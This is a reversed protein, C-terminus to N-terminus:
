NFNTKVILNNKGSEAFDMVVIGFRGKINTSFFSNIKPNIFNSVTTINPIGFLGSKYGSGYNIFLRNANGTKAENALATFTNWKNDNNPVKYQDQIKISAQNNIEFTTNGTTNSSDWITADLGKPLNSAPFRRVLVIKGRVSNLAPITNGFYWLNPNQQVYSNFTAEYSRNNGVSTHEEKIAMIITETPNNRLFTTCSALVNTFNIKQYVAGHHIEFTNNFHRCRIDLYRVGTNLQEDITLNQCKATSPFSEIRAGSDHTGPISLESLKKVGDVAGMWKPLTFAVAKTVNKKATSVTLENSSATEQISPSECSTFFAGVFCLSGIIKKTLNKM